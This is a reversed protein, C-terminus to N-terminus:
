VYMCKESADESTYQNEPENKKFNKVSEQSDRKDIHLAM